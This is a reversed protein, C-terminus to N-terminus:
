APIEPSSVVIHQVAGQNARSRQALFGGGATCAAVRRKKLDDVIRVNVTSLRRVANRVEDAVLGESRRDATANFAARTRASDGDVLSRVGSLYPNSSLFDM